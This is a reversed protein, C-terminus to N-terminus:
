ETWAENIAAVLRDRAEEPSCDMACGAAMPHGGGGFLACVRSANVETNSRLSIKCGGDEKERITASCRSGEMRGALSALDDCDNETAGAREMMDLTIVAVNIKGDRYRRMGSYIMGELKMRAESMTRFLIKNLDGYDAGAEMVEAAARHTNATTNRYLFCGTDTSIAIYLLDATAKDLGCGLERALELIIEGCAAREPKVLTRGAYFSNSGHHDICLAIEEGEYGIPYMTEAALDVAVRVQPVYDEPAILEGVFVNYKATIDPNPMLYATKGMRRLLLCLAGASGLTDGDPRRHTLLLYNDHARLFDACKKVSISNM